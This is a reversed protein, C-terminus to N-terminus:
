LNLLYRINLKNFYKINIEDSLNLYIIKVNNGLQMELNKIKLYTENFDDIKNTLQSTLVINKIKKVQIFKILDPTINKVFLGIEHNNQDNLLIKEIVNLDLNDDLSDIYIKGNHKSFLNWNNLANYQTLVLSIKESNNEVIYKNFINNELNKYFNINKIQKFQEQEIGNINLTIFKEINKEKLHDYLYNKQEIFDLYELKKTFIDLAENFKNFELDEIYSNFNNTKNSAYFKIKNAILTNSRESNNVIQFGFDKFYKKIIFLHSNKKFTLFFNNKFKNVENMNKFKKAITLIGEIYFFKLTKEELKFINLLATILNENIGQIYTLENVQLNILFWFNNDSLQNYNESIVYSNLTNKFNKKWYLIAWYNKEEENPFINLECSYTKNKEKHLYKIKLENKSLLNLYKSIKEKTDVDFLNFFKEIDYYENNNLSNNKNFDYHKIGSIKKSSSRIVTKQINNIKYIILGRSHFKKFFFFLAVLTVLLALILAFIVFITDILNTFIM